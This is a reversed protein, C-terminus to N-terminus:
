SNPFKLYKQNQFSGQFTLIYSSLFKTIEKNLYQYIGQVNGEFELVNQTGDRYVGIYKPYM